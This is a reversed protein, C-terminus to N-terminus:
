TDRNRWIGSLSSQKERIAQNAATGCYKLWRIQQGPIRLSWIEIHAGIRIDGSLLLEINGGTYNKM